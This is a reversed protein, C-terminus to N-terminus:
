LRSESLLAVRRWQYVDEQAADPGRTEADEGLLLLLLVFLLFLFVSAGGSAAARWEGM